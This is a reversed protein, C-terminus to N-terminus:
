VSMRRRHVWPTIDYIVLLTWAHTSGLEASAPQVKRLARALDPELNYSQLTLTTYGNPRERFEFYLIIFINWIGKDLAIGLFCTQNPDPPPNGYWYSSLSGGLPSADLAVETIIVLLYVFERYLPNACGRNGQRLWGLVFFFQCTRHRFNAHPFQILQEVITGQLHYPIQRNVLALYTHLM